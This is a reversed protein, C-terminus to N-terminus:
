LPVLEEPAADSTVWSPRETGDRERIIPAFEVVDDPRLEGIEADNRLVQGDDDGGRIVAVVLVEQGTAWRHATGTYIWRTGIIEM